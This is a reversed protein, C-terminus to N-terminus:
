NSRHQPRRLPRRANSGNNGLMAESFSERVLPIIHESGSDAVHESKLDPRSDSRVLAILRSRGTVDLKEYVSQLQKKVTLSSKNLRRAIEANRHGQSALWAVRQESRSLNAWLALQSCTLYDDSEGLCGDRSELRVLFMPLSLPAADMQLLNVTARLGPCSQHEIVRDNRNASPYSNGDGRHWTNKLRRCSEIIERPMEFHQRSKLSRAAQRGLNWLVGLEEAASNRYTVRLDWDLIITAIPLQRLLIELSMRRAKERHSALVRRGTNQFHPYLQDLLHVETDTFDRQQATRHLGVLGQFVDSEWLILYVQYRDGCPRMFSRFFETRVLRSSEIVDSLRVVRIGPHHEIYASFPCLEQFRQFEADDAFPDRERFITPPMVIFPRFCLCCFEIPLALHLLAKTAEWFDQMESVANLRLLAPELSSSTWQVALNTKM